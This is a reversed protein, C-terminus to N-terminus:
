NDSAVYAIKIPRQPRICRAGYLRGRLSLWDAQTCAAERIASNLSRGARQQRCVVFLFNYSVPTRSPVRSNAHAIKIQGLWRAFSVPITLLIHKVQWISNHMSTSILFTKLIVRKNRNFIYSIIYPRFINVFCREGRICLLLYNLEM